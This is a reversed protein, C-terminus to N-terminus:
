FNKIEVISVECELWKKLENITRGARGILLGPRRLYVTLVNSKNNFELKCVGMSFTSPNDEHQPEVAYCGDFYTEFLSKITDSKDREM